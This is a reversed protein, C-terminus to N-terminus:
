TCGRRYVAADGGAPHVGLVSARVCVCLNICVCARVCVCVQCVCVCVCVCVYCVCVCVCVRPRGRSQPRPCRAHRTRSTQVPRAPGPRATRRRRVYALQLIAYIRLSHAPMRTVKAPRGGLPLRPGRQRQLPAEVACCRLHSPYIGHRPRILSREVGRTPEGAPDSATHQRRRAAETDPYPRCLLLVGTTIIGVGAFPVLVKSSLILVIAVCRDHRQTSSAAM